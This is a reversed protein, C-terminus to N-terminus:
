YCYYNIFTDYLNEIKSYVDNNKILKVTCMDLNFINKIDNLNIDFISKLREVMNKKNFNEKILIRLIFDKIFNFKKNYSTYNSKTLLLKYDCYKQFNIETDFNIEVCELCTFILNKDASKKILYKNYFVFLIFFLYNIKLDSNTYGIYRFLNMKNNKINIFIEDLYNLLIDFDNLLFINKIDENKNLLISNIQSYLEGFKSKIKKSLCAFLLFDKRLKSLPFGKLENILIYNCKLSKFDETEENTFFDDIDNSIFNNIKSNINCFEGENEKMKYKTMEDNEDKEELNYNNDKANNNLDKKIIINQEKSSMIRKKNHNFSKKRHSNSDENNLNKLKFNNCKIQFINSEFKEKNKNSLYTLIYNNNIVDEVNFNFLLPSLLTNRIKGGKNKKILNLLINQSPKHKEELLHNNENIIKKRNKYNYNNITKPNLVNNYYKKDKDKINFLSNLKNQTSKNKTNLVKQILKKKYHDLTKSNRKLILINKENPYGIISDMIQQEYIDKTYYDKIIKNDERKSENSYTQYITKNNTTSEYLYKSEITNKETINTDKVFTNKIPSNNNKCKNKIQTDLNNYETSVDRYLSPIKYNKLKNGQKILYDDDLPFLKSDIKKRWSNKQKDNLYTIKVYIIRKINIFLQSPKIIRHFKEDYIEMKIPDYISFKLYKYVEYLIHNLDDCIIDKKSYNKIFNINIKSNIILIPFYFNIYLDEPYYKTYMKNKDNPLIIFLKRLLYIKNNKKIFCNPNIKTHLVLEEEKMNNNKLNSIINDNIIFSNLTNISYAKLNSEIINNVVNISSKPRENIRNKFNVFSKKNKNINFIKKQLKHNKEFSLLLKQKNNYVSEIKNISDEENM